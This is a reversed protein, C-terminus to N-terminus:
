EKIRKAIYQTEPYIFAEDIGIYKLQGLIAKKRKAPIIISCFNYWIDDMELPHIKDTLLFRNKFAREISALFDKPDGIRKRYSDMIRNFSLKDLCFIPDNVSNSKAYEIQEAYIENTREYNTYDFSYVARYKDDRQAYDCDSRADRIYNHFLLFVSRQMKMRNDLYIPKVFLPYSDSIDSFTHNLFRDVAIQNPRLWDDVLLNVCDEYLYLSSISEVCKDDYHHLRNQTFVVRGNSNPHESCAFYLAVMPNLSFDLLRTPVGFHQMASLKNFNSATGQFLAPAESIFEVALNHEIAYKDPKQEVYRQLSPSLKWTCNATGRYYGTYYPEKATLTSLANVIM